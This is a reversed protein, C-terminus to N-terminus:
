SPVNVDGTGTLAFNGLSVVSGSAILGPNLAKPTYTLTFGGGTCTAGLPAGPTPTPTVATGCGPFASTFFGQTYYNVQAQAPAAAPAVALLAGAAAVRNIRMEEAGGSSHSSTARSSRLRRRTRRSISRSAHSAAVPPALCLVIWVM